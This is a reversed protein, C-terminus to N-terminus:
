RSLSTTIYTEKQYSRELTTNTANKGNHEEFAKDLIQKVIYKPYNDKERFVKELYKLKKELLQDALWIFYARELLAKLTGRKCTASAFANM